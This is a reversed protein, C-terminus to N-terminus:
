FLDPGSIEIYDESFSLPYVFGSPHGISWELEAEQLPIDSANEKWWLSYYQNTEAVLQLVDVNNKPTM